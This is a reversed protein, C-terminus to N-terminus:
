RRVLKFCLEDFFTREGSAVRPNNMGEEIRGLLTIEFCPEFLRRVETETVSFPPGESQAPAYDLTILLMQGGPVLLSAVLRAYRARLQEPLAILAARDYAVRYRKGLSEAQFFDGQYLSIDGAQWCLYHTLQQQRPTVGAEIFFDRVALPSLEFGDIHHGQEALWHMDLSKGCLPVLVEAREPSALAQWHEQLQRNVRPQHFGIRSTQWRQHWFDADM